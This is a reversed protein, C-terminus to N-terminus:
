IYLTDAYVALWGSTRTGEGRGSSLRGEYGWVKLSWDIVISPRVKRDARRPAAATEAAGLQAQLVALAFMEDVKGAPWVVSV